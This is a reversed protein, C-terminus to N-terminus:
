KTRLIDHILQEDDLVCLPLPSLGRTLSSESFDSHLKFVCCGLVVM